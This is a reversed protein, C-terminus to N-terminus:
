SSSSAFAPASAASGAGFCVFGAATAYDAPAAPDLAAAGAAALAAAPEDGAALREHLALMLRHTSEDPVPVVSAILASTGLALLAGSFGMLEDGPRVASLGGDCASLIMDRPAGRLRELDYVTLPGDALQLASFLPNDARFVGHSAIHARDARELADAVAGV